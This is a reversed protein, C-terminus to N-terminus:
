LYSVMEGNKYICNRLYLSAPPERPIRSLVSGIPLLMADAEFQRAADKFVWVVDAGLVAMFAVFLSPLRDAQNAGYRNKHDSM